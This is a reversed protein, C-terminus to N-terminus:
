KFHVLFSIRSAPWLQRRSGHQELGLMRAITVLIKHPSKIFTVRLIPTM